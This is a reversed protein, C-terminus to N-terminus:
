CTEEGSDSEKRLSVGCQPCYNFTPKDSTWQYAKPPTYAKKGEEVHRWFADFRAHCNSCVWVSQTAMLELSASM